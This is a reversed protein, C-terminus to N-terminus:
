SGSIGSKSLNVQHGQASVVVATSTYDLGTLDIDFPLTSLDYKVDIDPNFGLDALSSSVQGSRLELTHSGVLTVSLDLSIDTGGLLQGIASPASVTAKLQNKGASTVTATGLQVGDITLYKSLVAAVDTYDITATANLTDVEAGNFAGNVHVGYLDAHLNSITLGNADLGHIDVTAHGFHRAAVQTLFPFGAISVSPKQKLNQSSQIRSALQDEAVLLGIRDVGVLVAILVLLAILWRRGRRRTRRVPLALTKDNNDAGPQEGGPYQMPMTPETM